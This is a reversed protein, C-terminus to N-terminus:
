YEALVIGTVPAVTISGSSADYRGIGNAVVSEGDTIWKYVGAPIEFEVSERSGNMLVVIRKAADIGELDHLQFGLAADNDCELFSLHERVAEATGLSFAPHAQRM